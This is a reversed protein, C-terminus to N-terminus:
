IDMDGHEKHLAGAILKRLQLQKLGQHLAEPCGRRQMKDLLSIM